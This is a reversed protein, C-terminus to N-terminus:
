ASLRLTLQDGFLREFEENLASRLEAALVEGASGQVIRMGALQRASRKLQLWVYGPKPEVLARAFVLTLLGRTDVNTAYIVFETGELMILHSPATGPLAQGLELMNALSGAVLSTIASLDLDTADGRQAVIHGVPDTFLVLNARTQHRLVDLLMQVDALTAAPRQGEDFSSWLRLPVGLADGVAAVLAQDTEPYAVLTHGALRAQRLLATDTNPLYFFLGRTLFARERLRRLFELSEATLAAIILDVAQRRMMLRAAAVSRARQVKLTLGYMAGARVLTMEWRESRAIDPEIIFIRRSM